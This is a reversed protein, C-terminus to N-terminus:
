MKVRLRLQVSRSMPYSQPVYGGRGYTWPVAQTVGDNTPVGNGLLYPQESGMVSQFYAAYLPDGGAYGPPGILYPNAQYETPAYNGFLNAVDLIATVRPSLDGEVHLNVLMQPPSRLTNPDNGEPTGLSSIYPNAAADFPQSPDKLFYYSAGPNVYNDNPVQVPKHTVPDFIWATKGVGYPYGSEYSLSPEIRIRRGATDIEYSLTASFDPVYGLPFLHGAAIAPANLDNYAFELASSSAARIYQANLTLGSRRVWLELGQARLQGVNTPVGIPSPLVQGAVAQRFNFPLVDIRNKEFEGYYTLRFQTTGTGEVAYTFQNATEPNLTVFPAPNGNQDVNSSDYRDAELPKPPVTTHDFTARLAYRDGIRYTAALHPDLAALGYAFGTSPAIRTGILRLAGMVDMRRSASWTDGFYALYSHLMPNSRVVEDFTPVVQDLTYANIRYEAGFRLYHRDSLVDEGDYALGEEHGSQEGFFSFTGNPFGNEDWYPGGASAGFRSQYLQVRSLSRNSTHLWTAKVIDFTGRIGSPFTVAEGPSREGPYKIQAGDFAGFTEGDYPTGYQDYAGQGAFGLLALDDKQTPRYHLNAEVAYQSRSQLALGYTGAEAPYFTRGDGYAFYENDITSAFAYRWRQDPTASLFQVSASQSKPGAIGDGIELTMSGPYTGIAPIQDIVGGLANDGQTQYGALTVTTSAIGTTPLQAGVVNGGPEAILGQPIPVSDFDFVADDVKGGRLVANAFPDLIVGPVSAIAGQVTGASYNALGSSSVPPALARAASGSVTFADSTTGATFANASTHLKAITKLRPMLRFAIEQTQGPLVTIGSRTDPEFQAAQVSVTYTDPTIGLITFRGRADTVAAYRGSPSAAAVAANEVPQGDGSSVIGAITGTTAEAARVPAILVTVISALLLYAAFNRTM